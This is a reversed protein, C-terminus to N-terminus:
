GVAQSLTEAVTWLVIGKRGEYVAHQGAKRKERQKSEAPASNRETNTQGNTRSAGTARQRAEPTPTEPEASRQPTTPAGQEAALGLVDELGEKSLTTFGGTLAYRHFGLIPHSGKDPFKYHIPSAFTRIERLSVGLIPTRGAWKAGEENSFVGSSAVAEGVFGEGAIYLLLRDEPELKRIPTRNSSVWFDGNVLTTEYNNRASEGVFAAVWQAM